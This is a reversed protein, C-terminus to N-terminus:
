GDNSIIFCKSGKIDALQIIKHAFFRPYFTGNRLRRKDAFTESLSTVRYITISGFYQVTGTLNDTNEMGIQM